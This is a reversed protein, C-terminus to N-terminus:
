CTDTEKGEVSIESEQLLEWRQPLVKEMNHIQTLSMKRKKATPQPIYFEFETNDYEVIQHKEHMVCM